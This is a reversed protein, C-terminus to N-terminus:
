AEAVRPQHVPERSKRFSACAKASRTHRNSKLIAHIWIAALRVRLRSQHSFPDRLEQDPSDQLDNANKYHKGSSILADIRM